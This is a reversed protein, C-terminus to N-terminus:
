NSSANKARQNKENQNHFCYTGGFSKNKCFGCHTVEWFIVNKVTVATFIELIVKKFIAKLFLEWCRYWTPNSILFTLYYDDRRTMKLNLLTRFDCTSLNTSYPPHDIQTISKMHLIELFRLMHHAPAELHFICEDRWLVLRKKRVPEWLRALVELNCHHRVPKEQACFEYNDAGRSPFIGFCLRSQSSM